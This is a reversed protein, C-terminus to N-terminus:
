QITQNEDITNLKEPSRWSSDVNDKHFLGVPIRVMEDFDFINIDHNEEIYRWPIKSSSTGGITAHYCIIIRIGLIAFVIRSKTNGGM